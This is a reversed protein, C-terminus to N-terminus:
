ICKTKKNKIIDLVREKSIEFDNDLWEQEILKLTEGILTGEKMGREKLYKGDFSLKPIDFKKINNLIDLYDKEKTKKINSFNLVNLGLLHDKGFFYINKKLDRNFFKKNLQLNKFNKAM